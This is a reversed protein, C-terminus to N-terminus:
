YGHREELFKVLVRAEAASDKLVGLIYNHKRCLLCVICKECGHVHKCCKIKKQLEHNHHIVLPSKRGCGPFGCANGHKKRVEANKKDIRIKQAKNCKVRHKHHYNLSNQNIRLRNKDRYDANYCGYCKGLCHVEEGCGCVVVAYMRPRGTRM